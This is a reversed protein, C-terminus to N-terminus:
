ISLLYLQPNLLQIGLALQNYSKGIPSCQIARHYHTIVNSWSSAGNSAAIINNTAQRNIHLARYRELDGIAIYVLCQNMAMSRSEESLSSWRLAITSTGASSSSSRKAISDALATFFLIADDLVRALLARVHSDDVGRRAKIIVLHEEIQRDFVHIHNVLLICEITLISITYSYTLKLTQTPPPRLVQLFHAV